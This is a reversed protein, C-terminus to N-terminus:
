KTRNWIFHMTMIKIQTTRKLWESKTWLSTWINQINSIFRLQLQGKPISYFSFSHFAPCRHLKVARCIWQSLHSAAACHTPVMIEDSEAPKIHCPQTSKISHVLHVHLGFFFFFPSSTGCIAPMNWCSRSIFCGRHYGKVIFIYIIYICISINCRIINAYVKYMVCNIFPTPFPTCKNWPWKSTLMLRRQASLVFSTRPRGPVQGNDSSSSPRVNSRQNVIPRRKLISSIDLWHLGM